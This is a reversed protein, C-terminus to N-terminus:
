KCFLLDTNEQIFEIIGVSLQDERESNGQEWSGELKIKKENRSARM